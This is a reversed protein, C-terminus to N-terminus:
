ARVGDHATGPGPRLVLRVDDGLRDVAVFRGRWLERMTAIGAGAFLPRSDDGGTLAPAVYLVYEDVFGGRHFRGAVDAGGEVLVQVVGEAGLTDLLSDIDGTHTRAPEVRAGAPVAGLVIRQPDLGRRPRQPIPPQHDRVTLSPDDARVTGAGVIVADSEARLRHADARAEAGTIWQSSGDPAAIRGDLTAALKLVVYPRGTRRHALYAHLQEAIEDAAVGVEVAVGAARLRAIGSGAVQHDPDEIGVVVRAVGAAIVADACPGTRGHHSCPELTAYLTAGRAADGAARLADIEAHPGGPESTAGDFMSGDRSVVVAGVWPNPPALLRARAANAIARQMRHLDDRESAM